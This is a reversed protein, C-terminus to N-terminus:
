VFAFYYVRVGDFDVVHVDVVGHGATWKVVRGVFQAWM